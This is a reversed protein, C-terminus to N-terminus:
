LREARLGPDNSSQEDEYDRYKLDLPLPQTRPERQSNLEGHRSDTVAIPYSMRPKHNVHGYVFPETGSSAPYMSNCLVAGLEIPFIDSSSDREFWWM